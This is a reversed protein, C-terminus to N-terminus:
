IEKWNASRPEFLFIGVAASFHWTSTPPGVTRNTKNTHTAVIKLENQKMYVARNTGSEARNQFVFNDLPPKPIKEFW